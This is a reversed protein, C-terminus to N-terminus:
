APPVFEADFSQGGVLQRGLRLFQQEARHLGVPDVGAAGAALAPHHPRREGALSIAPPALRILVIASTPKFPRRARAESCSVTTSKASDTSSTKKPVNAWIFLPM